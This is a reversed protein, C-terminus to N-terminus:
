DDEAAFNFDVEGDNYITMRKGKPITLHIIGFKSESDYRSNWADFVKAGIEYRAEAISDYPKDGMRVISAGCRNCWIRATNVSYSSRIDDSGCFPCPKLEAM